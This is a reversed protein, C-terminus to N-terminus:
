KNEKGSEGNEGNPDVMKENGGFNITEEKVPTAPTIKKEYIEFTFGEKQPIAKAKIEIRGDKPMDPVQRVAQKNLEDLEQVRDEVLERNGAPAASCFLVSSFASCLICFVAKIGTKSRRAM